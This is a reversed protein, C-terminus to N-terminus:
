NCLCTYPQQPKCVGNLKQDRKAEAIKRGDALDFDFTSWQLAKQAGENSRRQESYHAHEAHEVVGLWTEQAGTATREPCLLRCRVPTGCLPHGVRVPRKSRAAPKRWARPLRMDRVSCSGPMVCAAEVVFTLPCRRGSGVILRDVPRFM